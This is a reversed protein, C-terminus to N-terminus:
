SLTYLYSPLLFLSSPFFSRTNLMHFSILLIPSNTISTTFQHHDSSLYFLLYSLAVALLLLLSRQSGYM